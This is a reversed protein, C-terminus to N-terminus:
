KFPIDEATQENDFWYEWFSFTPICMELCSRELIKSSFCSLTFQFSFFLAKPMCVAVSTCYLNIVTEAGETSLEFYKSYQVYCTIKKWGEFVIYKMLSPKKRQRVINNKLLSSLNARIGTIKLAERLCRPLKGELEEELRNSQSRKTSSEESPLEPISLSCWCSFLTGLCPLSPDCVTSARLPINATWM